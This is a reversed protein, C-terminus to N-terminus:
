NNFTKPFSFYINLVLSGQIVRPCRYGPNPYDLTYLVLLFHVKISNEYKYHVVSNLKRPTVWEFTLLPSDM